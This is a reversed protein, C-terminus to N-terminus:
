GILLFFQGGGINMNDPFVSLFEAAGMVSHFLMPSM